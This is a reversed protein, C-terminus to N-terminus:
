VNKINLQRIAIFFIYKYPSRMLVLQVIQTSLLLTVNFNVLMAIDSTKIVHTRHSMADVFLLLIRQSLLNVARQIELLRTIVSILSTRHIQSLSCKSNLTKVEVCTELHFLQCRKLNLSNRQLLTTIKLITLKIGYTTMIVMCEVVSGEQKLRQYAFCNTYNSIYKKM